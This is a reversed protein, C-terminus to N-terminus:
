RVPRFLIHILSLLHGAFRPLLVGRSQLLAFRDVFLDQLDFRRPRTAIGTRLCQLPHVVFPEHVGVSRAVPEHPVVGIVVLPDSTYLLCIKAELIKDNDDYVIKNGKIVGLSELEKLAKPGNIKGKRDRICM